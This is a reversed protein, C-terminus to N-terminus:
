RMNKEGKPNDRLVRGAFCKQVDIFRCSKKKRIPHIHHIETEKQNITKLLHGGKRGRNQNAAIEHRRKGWGRTGAM